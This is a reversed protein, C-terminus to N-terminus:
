GLREAAGRAEAVDRRYLEARLADRVRRPLSLPNRHLYARLEDRPADALSQLVTKQEPDALYRLV